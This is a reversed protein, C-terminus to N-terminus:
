TPDPLSDILAQVKDLRTKYTPNDADAAALESLMSSARTLWQRAQAIQDSNIAHEASETLADSYLIRLTTNTPSNEILTALKHRYAAFEEAAKASYRPSRSHALALGRLAKAELLAYDANDPAKEILPAVKRMITNCHAEALNPQDSRLLIDVMMVLSRCELYPYEARSADQRELNNTLEIDTRFSELALEDYHKSQEPDSCAASLRCYLDGQLFYNMALGKRFSLRNPSLSSIKSYIQRSENLLTAAENFKDRDMASQASCQLAYGLRERIRSHEPYKEHIERYLILMDALAKRYTEISGEAHALMALEGLAQGRACQFDPNAPVQSCLETLMRLAVMLYRRVEANDNRSRAISVQHLLVSAYDYDYSNNEPHVDRLVRLLEASRMLASEAADLNGQRTCLLGYNRWSAALSRLLTVNEAGQPREMSNLYTNLHEGLVRQLRTSGPIDAIEDYFETLLSETHRLSNEYAHIALFRERLAWLSIGCFVALVVSATIALLRMRRQIRPATPLVGDEIADRWEAASQWRESINLALARDIAELFTAGYVEELDARGALPTYPDEGALVRLDSKPPYLHTLLYYFCVGMAYIDTWPGISRSMEEDSEARSQEPACFDPTFVNSFVKGEQIQRASGFDLLIPYGDSTILINAPKVDRHVIRHMSLYDLTSLLSLLLRKHHRATQAQQTADLTTQELADMPLGDKFPMVYYATGNAAFASLIPVIGPHSLGMLVTVEEMFEEMTARFREETEPSSHVVYTSHPERTALGEPMHEKIVVHTGKATHTARYTIGFGGSGIKSTITYAGVATGPPLPLRPDTEVPQSGTRLSSSNGSLRHLMADTVNDETAHSAGPSTPFPTGASTAPLVPHPASPVQPTTPVIPPAPPPPPAGAARSPPTPVPPPPLPAKPRPVMPPPPAVVRPPPPAGGAGRAATAPPVVPVPPPPLPEKGTHPVPPTM